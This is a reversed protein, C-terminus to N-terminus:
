PALIRTQTQTLKSEKSLGRRPREPIIRSRPCYSQFSPQPKIQTLIYCQIGLRSLVIVSFAGKPVYKHQGVQITGYVYLLHSSIKKKGLCKLYFPVYKYQGVQITGHTHLIHPSIKKGLCKSYFISSSFFHLFSLEMSVSSLLRHLFPRERFAKVVKVSPHFSLYEGMFPWICGCVQHISM